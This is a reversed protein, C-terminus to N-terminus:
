CAREMRSLPEGQPPPLPPSLGGDDEDVVAAGVDVVTVEPKGVEVEGPLEVTMGVPVVVDEAGAEVAM